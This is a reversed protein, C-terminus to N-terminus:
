VRAILRPIALDLGAATVTDDCKSDRYAILLRTNPLLNDAVGDTKNNIERLAQQVGVLMSWSAFTSYGAAETGFMPLLM